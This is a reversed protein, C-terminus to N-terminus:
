SGLRNPIPGIGNVLCEVQAERDGLGVLTLGIRSHRGRGHRGIIEVTIMFTIWPFEGKSDELIKTLTGPKFRGHGKHSRRLKDGLQDCISCPAPKIAEKQIQRM